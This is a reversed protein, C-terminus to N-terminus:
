WSVVFLSLRTVNVSESVWCSSIYLGMSSQASSRTASTAVISDHALLELLPEGDLTPEVVVRVSVRERDLSLLWTRSADGAGSRPLHLNIAVHPSPLVAIQIQAGIM